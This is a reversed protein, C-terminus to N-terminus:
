SSPLVFVVTPDAESLVPIEAALSGPSPDFCLLVLEPSAPVPSPLTFVTPGGPALEALPGTRWADDSGSTRGAVACAADPGFGEVLVQITPVPTPSETPIPVDTPASTAVPSATSEGGTSLPTPTPAGSPTPTTTASVVSASQGGPATADSSNTACFATGGTEACSGTQRVHDITAGELEILGTSGSGGGCAAALVLVGLWATLRRRIRM